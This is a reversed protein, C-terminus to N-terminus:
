RTLLSLSITTAERSGQLALIKLILSALKPDRQQNLVTTEMEAFHKITKLSLLMLNLRSAEKRERMWLKTSVKRPDQMRDERSCGEEMKFITTMLILTKSKSVLLIQLSSLPSDRSLDLRITALKVLLLLLTSMPRRASM